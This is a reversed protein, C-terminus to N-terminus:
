QGNPHDSQTCFDGKQIGHNWLKTPVPFVDFGNPLLYSEELIVHTVKVCQSLDNFSLVGYEMQRSLDAMAVAHTLRQCVQAHVTHRGHIQDLSAAYVIRINANDVGRGPLDVAGRLHKGDLFVV